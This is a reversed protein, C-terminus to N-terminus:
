WRKAGAQESTVKNDRAAVGIGLIALAETVKTWDVGTGPDDDLVAQAQTLLIVLAAIIGLVTTRWSKM